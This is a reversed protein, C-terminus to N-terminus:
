CKRLSQNQMIATRNLCDFGDEVYHSTLVIHVPDNKQHCLEELISHMAMRSNYDLGSFPEDLLLLQPKNILLRALFLTRLQGTSLSRIRRKALHQVKFNILMQEAKAYEEESYNRYIGAVSEFGSLVLELGTVDYAYSQEERHSLLAIHAKINELDNIKEYKKHEKHYIFRELIGGWAVYEQAALLRLFTSKGSGNEGQLLWHEGKRWTWSIDQLIVKRDIYVTADKIKIFVDNENSNLENHNNSPSIEKTLTPYPKSHENLTLHGQELSYIHQVWHPIGQPRHDTFIITAGCDQLIDHIHERHKIDLGDM